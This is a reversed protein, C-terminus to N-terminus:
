LIPTFLTKRGQAEGALTEADHKVPMSVLPPNGSNRIKKFVLPSTHFDSTFTKSPIWCPCGVVIKPLRRALEGIQALSVLRREEAGRERTRALSVESAWIPSSARLSFKQFIDTRFVIQSRSNEFMQQLIRAQRGRRPNELM